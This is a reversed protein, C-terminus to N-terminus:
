QAFGLIHPKVFRVYIENPDRSNKEASRENDNRELHAGIILSLMLGMKGIIDGLMCQKQGERKVVLKAMDMRPNSALSEKIQPAQETQM